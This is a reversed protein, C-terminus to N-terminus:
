FIDQFIDNLKSEIYQVSKLISETDQQGTGEKAMLPTMTQTFTRAAARVQGTTTQRSYLVCLILREALVSFHIKDPDAGYLKISLEQSTSQAVMYSLAGVVGAATAGMTDRDVPHFDGCSSLICGTRDIVLACRADSDAVLIGLAEDMASIVVESFYVFGTSNGHGGPTNPTKDAM